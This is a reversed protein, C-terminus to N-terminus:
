REPEQISMDGLRNSIYHLYEFVFRLGLSFKILAQSAMLKVIM